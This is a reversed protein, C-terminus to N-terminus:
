KGSMSEAPVRCEGFTQIEWIISTERKSIWSFRIKIPKLKKMVDLTWTNRFASESGSTKVTFVLARARPLFLRDYKVRTSHARSRSAITQIVGGSKPKMMFHDAGMCICISQNKLRVEIFMSWWFLFFSVLSLSISSSHLWVVVVLFFGLVPKATDQVFPCMAHYNVWYCVWEWLTVPLRDLLMRNWKYKLKQNTIMIFALWQTVWYMVYFFTSKTNVIVAMCKHFIIYVYPRSLICDKLFM